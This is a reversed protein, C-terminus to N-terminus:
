WFDGCSCLGDKFHHFRNRDRVFIERGVIKSIFKTATHCDDCVRLNKIIRLPTGPCTNILGFAIALKESHSYLIREKEEEEVDHLIRNTDPVYGAAKMQGALSQLRAHIKDMQPHSRDGVVFAHVKDKVRIWSWGLRKKVGRDKMVERLIIIDDWRGALAYINALLIYNGANEPELQFLHASAREGLDINHHIRCANLLAGWISIDPELPMSHIFDWAEDLYGGRGLLDVMCAYHELNPTIHHDQSMSDFYQWGEDLLGAHSCASLVSTFTISDPKMGEQLMQHFIVLADEGHGHIAHGAIMANWTAVNRESMKDFIQCADKINGGNAYMDVLATGVFVDLEFESRISYGHIEKGQELAALNACAPLVSATSVSNPKVRAVQMQQFLRLAEESHGNQACGAIVATWSVVNPKMGALQMQYLLKLAESGHGNQAYGAIMTNWTIIDLKVGALQMQGFLKLADDVRGSLAYGAIMSNWTVVNRESMKDFWSRANNISGCKGYMDVLASGVFVDSEFGSRMAYGHIEKGNRLAALDTCVQLVGAITNSNPKVGAFLMQRLFKLADAGHGNQAHGAIIATWSVVSPKLGASRMGHFLKLAEDCHGNQAAGTITTNWTILNPKVGTMQMQYFLKFADNVHGNQAYGAIMANWSVVNRRSMNEFVHSAYEINRCKGYMDILASGVFVDSEFGRRIVYGHIQKGREVAELRACAQLVSSVTVTNPKVKASQMQCFLKLADNWRGNQAYGAIIATWSNVNPKEGALQMQQFLKLAEDGHGNQSYGAIMANWTVKNRQSMKDFVRRAHELNGCKAYMDALASGVFVDSQFGSKTIHAHIEKGERLAALGACTKLVTSLILDDPRIDGKRLEYFLILAEEFQGQRAYEGIMPTWSFVDRERMQDFVSRADVLSGCKAYMIVLKTELFMNGEYETKLMHAHTQKGLALSKSNACLQLISACTDSDVWIDQKELVHLGDMGEKMLGERCPAMMNATIPEGCTTSCLGKSNGQMLGIFMGIQCNKNKRKRFEMHPKHTYVPHQILSSPYVMAPAM